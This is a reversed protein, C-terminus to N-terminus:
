VPSAAASPLFGGVEAVEEPRGFRGAPILGLYTRRLDPSLSALMETEIFGPIVCNVRIGYPALELALTRSLGIVGAKAAAYNAQGPRGSVAPTSSINVM